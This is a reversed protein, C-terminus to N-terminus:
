PNCRLAWRSTQYQKWASLGLALELLAALTTAEARRPRVAGPRHLDAFSAPLADAVLPLPEVPAGAYTRFPDPQNAWDLGGPSQAYRHPHHKSRRHYSLVTRLDGDPTAPETM